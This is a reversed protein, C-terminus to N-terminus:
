ITACGSIRKRGHPCEVWSLLVKGGPGCKVVIEPLGSTALLFVWSRHNAGGAIRRGAAARASTSNSIKGSGEDAAQRPSARSASRAEARAENREGGFKASVAGDAAIVIELTDGGFVDGAEECEELAQESHRGVAAYGASVFKEGNTGEALFDM